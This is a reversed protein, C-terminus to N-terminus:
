PTVGVGFGINIADLVPHLIGTMWLIGVAFSLIGLFLSPLLMSGPIEAPGDNGPFATEGEARIYMIEVVRWFYVIMLLTSIFIVAVFVYQRAELAALILYWKSVFGGGPPMGVMALAALILVLCTYPMRRSLGVFQRIDWLNFRYIFGCAAMFMAGKIIAHNMIHMVAPTLGLATSPALGMALVIYGVNAISSYALMRKLNNQQIAFISGAIMALAAVWCMIDFVPLIQNIFDLTFVSFIIRILAYVFTKAAATSIIVSVASPAHEYVDPQWSHLPFLAIKISFGIFIFVFAAVVVRSTYLSPLITRIDAMNLSGTAIYLYGVGLLYFSAGITGLILYRFSAVPARNKGIAVLAYGTLSTVELLVFLNFMDGTIVIGLLGTMLLMYLSWFLTFKQPMEKEVSKKSYIATTFGLFSILTLMFANLSDIRYEIGWPPPWGGIWYTITGSVVVSNMISVSGILCVSMAAMAMAFALNRQQRGAVFIFLSAVLPTVVIIIPFQQNMKIM